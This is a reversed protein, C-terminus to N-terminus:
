LGGRNYITSKEMRQKALITYIRINRYKNGIDDGQILFTALQDLIRRAEAILYGIQKMRQSEQDLAAVGLRAEEWIRSTEQLPVGYWQNFDIGFYKLASPQHSILTQHWSQGFHSQCRKFGEGAINQQQRYLLESTRFDAEISKM